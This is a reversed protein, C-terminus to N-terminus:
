TWSHQDTTHSLRLSNGVVCVISFLIVAPASSPNLVGFVTLAMGVANCLLACFLNQRVLSMAKHALDFLQPIKQLDSDLLVVSVEKSAIDTGNGMAIGLDAAALAPADNIGDGVM